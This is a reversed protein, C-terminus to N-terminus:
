RRDAPQRSRGPVLLGTALLTLLGAVPVTVLAGRLSSADAVAGVLVPSALFGLRLASSVVTIGLGAPLGPLEDAAHLAAPVLTAVGLGALAFGALTTATTPVALALGAGVAVAAGGLRGVLRQGLRDVVRDGTLRGVTMAVQLTVFALGATAAGSGVVDRMFLASWSAAADEVFAASAALAGAAGLLVVTRGAVRRPGRRDPGSAAPEREADEPGPLLSRRTALALLTFLVACSGLHVTLPVGLGAAASGLLGGAVAGVSWLGHFGNVLSRGYRRQVRFGHANQGADVAADSAGFALMLAAFAAWGGSLSLAALAVAPVVLGVSAVTASGLRRILPPVLLGGVLAGLPMAAIGAGLAANDLGLAAKLDPLRPVLNAYLVGNLFFLVSVATRARHLTRSM